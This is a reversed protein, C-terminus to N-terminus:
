SLRSLDIGRRFEALSYQQYALNWAWPERDPWHPKEIDGFKWCVGNPFEGLPIAPVGKLTSHIAATSSHVVCCWADELADDLNGEGKNKVVVPRDTHLSVERVVSELWKDPDIGLFEGIFPSLSCVLVHRGKREWPRMSIGLKEWRDPPYEGKGSAHLGNRVIRFNGEYYGPGFYGHDVYYFDRKVWQCEKLIDGTGRLLGFLVAPGDLLRVPPVIRAKFGDALASCVVKSHVHNTAYVNM